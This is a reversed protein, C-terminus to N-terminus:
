EESRGEKRIKHINYFGVVICMAEFPLAAYNKISYNYIGWCVESIIFLLKFFVMNETDMFWTFIAIGVIPLWAVLSGGAFIATIGFQLVIFGIKWPKTFKTKSCVTNRAIIAADAVVGSYGHLVLASAILLGNMISQALLFKKKNKILGLCVMIISGFLSIVNGIIIQAQSM